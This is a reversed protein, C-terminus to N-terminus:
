SQEADREVVARMSRLTTAVEVEEVRPIRRIVVEEVVFLRKEVVAREEVISLILVDGEERPPPASAVEQNLPRREVQLEERALDATLSTHNEEVITRVRVRDTEVKRKTLTAVEEVIPLTLGHDETEAM